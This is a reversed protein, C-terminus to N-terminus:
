DQVKLNGWTTTLKGAAGIHGRLRTADTLRQRNGDFSVDEIQYYYVVNPKATRDTYSYTHKEGTTGAGQIMTPNIVVFKGTKTASRLINFGANNLESQTTWKIVVGADTRKPLFSSLSVPLASGPYFGPTGIDSTAGYYTDSPNKTLQLSEKASDWGAAIGDNYYRILSIRETADGIKAATLLEKGITVTDVPTDSTQQEKGFLKLTFGETSLMTYRAHQVELAQRADSDAWLIMVRQSTLVASSAGRRTAILMTQNPPLRFGDPLDITVNRRSDVEGVNEIQLRWADLNIGQTPSSNRLEIWQPYRGNNSVVMIESISIADSNSLDDPKEKLSDNPFGPTGGNADINGAIRDYGIGTYVAKTWTHEAFGETAKNRQYVFPSQFEEAVDKLVDGHGTPTAQLPWIDTSLKTDAEFLTGTIDKINEHTNRKDHADRLVLLFKGSEPLANLGGKADYFMADAKIGRNEQDAVATMGEADGFKKGRALATELPDKNVILLIKGAGLNYDKDPFSVLTNEDPDTGDDAGDPVIVNLEWKKLNVEAASVNRLEIWDNVDDTNNGIENIIIPSYPISTQDARTIQTVHASGPSGIRNAGLDLAPATSVKWSGELTGDNVDTLAGDSNVGAKFKGNADLGLDRRMSILPVAVIGATEGTAAVEVSRGSQGPVNWKGDGLNSVTDVARTDATFTDASYPTIKLQYNSLQIEAAGANYIEIWQSLKSDPQSLDTGWMIETIIPGVSAPTRTDILELTGGNGTFFTELNPLRPISYFRKALGTNSVSAGSHALVVFGKAPLAVSPLTLTDKVTVGLVDLSPADVKRLEDAAVAGMSSAGAALITQSPVLAPPTAGDSNSITAGNLTLGAKIAVGDTDEGDGVKVQYSFILGTKAIEATTADADYYAKRENAEASGAILLTIYPGKVAEGTTGKIVLLGNTPSVNTFAVKVQITGGVRYTGPAPGHFTAVPNRLATSSGVPVMLMNSAYNHNGAIDKVIEASDSGAPVQVTLDGDYDSPATITALYVAAQPATFARGWMGHYRVNSVANEIATAGAMVKIDSATLPHNPHLSEGLNSNRVPLDNLFTIYVTFTEGREVIGQDQNVLDLDYAALGYVIDHNDDDPAGDADLPVRAIRVTPRYTDVNHSASPHNPALWRSNNNPWVTFDFENDYQDTIKATNAVRKLGWVSTSDGFNGDGAVVDYEFDLTTATGDGQGIKLSANKTQPREYFQVRLKLDSPNTVTVNESFTVRFVMKEGAKYGGTNATGTAPALSYGKNNNLMGESDRYNNSPDGTEKYISGPGFWTFDTRNGYNVRRAEVFHSYHQGSVPNSVMELPSNLNADGSPHNHVVITPGKGDMRIPIEWPLPGGGTRADAVFPATTAGSAFAGADQIVFHPWAVTLATGANNKIKGSNSTLGYVAGSWIQLKPGRLVGGVTYRFYFVTAASANETWTTGNANVIELSTDGTDEGTVWYGAGFKLGPSLRVGASFTVKFWVEDGAQLTEGEVVDRANSYATGTTEKDRIQVENVTVTTNQAALPAALAVVGAILLLVLVKTMFSNKFTKTDM